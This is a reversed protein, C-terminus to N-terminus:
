QGGDFTGPHGPPHPLPWTGSVGRCILVEYYEKALPFALTAATLVLLGGIVFSKRRNVQDVLVGIFPQSIAAVLGFCSLLVGARVPEPWSFPGPQLRSVLAPIVIFLMSNGLGDSLRAFSLAAIARNIGIKKLMDM